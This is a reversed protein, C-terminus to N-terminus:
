RSMTKVILWIIIFWILIIPIAYYWKQPKGEKWLNESEKKCKEWVDKPILKMTLAIFAPLLIVDDLYGLM